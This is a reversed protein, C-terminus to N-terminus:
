IINEPMPIGIKSIKQRTMKFFYLNKHKKPNKAWFQIDGYNQILQVLVM